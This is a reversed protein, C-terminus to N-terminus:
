PAQITVRLPDVRSQLEPIEVEEHILCIWCYQPNRAEIVDVFRVGGGVVARAGVPLFLHGEDDLILDEAGGVAWRWPQATPSNECHLGIRFAGPQEYEELTAFNQDSDYVTGPPPGSTRIPVSSDNLVTLSFWLTEGLPISYDPNEIPWDVEGNVIYVRPVGGDEIELTGTVATWQGVADRARMVVDYAGDPPPEAGHDVGADYDFEHPGAENYPTLKEKWEVPYRIPDEGEEVEEWNRNVLYVDLQDVDKTLFVNITARDALGDRNPTFVPPSVSFGRLEPLAVDADEITLTGRAQQSSGLEDVAELVWTYIGDQLVRKEVLFGDFDDELLSYSDVVGAFYVGYPREVSPGRYANKRFYYREGDGGEFYISVFASRGLSYNILLVDDDYDANPTILDTSFSVDSLLPRARCSTLALLAVIPLLLSYRSRL